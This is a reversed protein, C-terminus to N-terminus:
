SDPSRPAESMLAMVNGESDRFFAMWLNHDEARHVLEPPHEFSVDRAALATHAAEIDAVRFYLISSPHAFEPKEAVGLMLRVDGCMLFAMNGASFLYPLGLADRYFTTARELDEVNIHVQGLALIKPAKSM